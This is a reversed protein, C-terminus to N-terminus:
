PRTEGQTAEEHASSTYDARIDFRLLMRAHTHGMAYISFPKQHVQFREFLYILTAGLLYVDRTSPNAFSSIYGGIPELERIDPAYLLLRTLGPGSIVHRGNVKDYNWGDFRHGHEVLLDGNLGRYTSDRRPLALQAGLEPRTLYGDHNGGLYKVEALGAMELRRLASFVPTNQVLVELGWDAVRNPSGNDLWIPAGHDGPVFQYARGVWLELMDGTQIFHLRQKIEHSLGALGDLFRVLDTGAHRFIDPNSQYNPDHADPVQDTERDHAARDYYGRLIYDPQRMMAPAQALWTPLVHPPPFTIDRQSYFWKVPPMHLDGLLLYLNPDTSTKPNLDRARAYQLVQAGCGRETLGAFFDRVAKVRTLPMVVNDVYECLYVHPGCILAFDRRRTGQGDADDVWCGVDLYVFSPSERALITRTERTVYCIRNSLEAAASCSLAGQDFVYRFPGLGGDPSREMTYKLPRAYGKARLPEADEVYGM